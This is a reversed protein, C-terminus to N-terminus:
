SRLLNTAWVEVEDPHSPLAATLNVFGSETVIIDDEIRVGIGRYKEPVLLDDPHFYLGPEVTFSMGAKIVTDRYNENRAAACDHVDIGLMHSVGHVTWRKHLGNEPKLSESASIPLIGLKELGNALVEAAAKAGDMFYAGPKITAFAAKQAEYVLSYIELQAPTFKGDIPITRTVDATYYSEVEVGADILILDGPIVAGNNKTWHLICAHSGSAVISNYGLDNGELRARGFFAGEIVREGKPQSIAAPIVRVMDHFGRISIDVARQLENVEYSDKILRMESLNIVFDAEKKKRAEILNDLKPNENRVLLTEINKGLFAELDEVSKTAIGYRIATEDLTMRRGIWFEGNASDRYFQETERSQRPPVFLYSDHALGESSFNPEMVLVSGPLADAAVMGTFYIFDSNPRFPYDTDNARPKAIGAPIVLRIGPYIKSLANRRQQVFSLNEIATVGLLPTPAWGSKMFEALGAPNPADYNREGHDTETSTQSTPQQFSNM